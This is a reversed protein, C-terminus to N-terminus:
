SSRDPYVRNARKPLMFTAIFGALLFAAAVFGVYSTALAFADAAAGLADLGGPQATLAPIAQSPQSTIERALQDAETSAFGAGELNTSTQNRLTSVLVAGLVATGLAAGIQRATSQVASGQGSESVPIDILIVNTIQATAFGVGLGYVFLWPVFGWGGIEPSVVLAIGVIGVMELVLGVRVVIVSGIRTALQGALPGALFAGAALAFLVAGTGLATLGTVSQLFLPLAFLLGFEGLNIILAAINGFSFSRIKFLKLDILTPKGKQAASKQHLLFVILAVISIVFALGSPSVSDFPWEVGFIEFTATPVWWGYNQGEILAFVLAGLGLASLLAGLWDLGRKANLDRTEPVFKLLGFVIVAGIPVNILFAWRWSFSETLWGGLLPGVAATGGITAGWIGFAVARDRGRYIANVTSLSAPLVMAGGVGQIVRAGILWGASEATAAALSAIVFVVTGILFLRKRGYLDGLRGTLLVLSAFVLAYVSNVWEADTTTIGIDKIISPIAVNVITSDVIILAVGLAIFPMPVWKGRNSM